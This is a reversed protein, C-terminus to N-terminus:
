LYKQKYDKYLDVLTNYLTPNIKPKIIELSAINGKILEQYHDMIFSYIIHVEEKTCILNKKDAFNKLHQITLKHINKEIFDIIIIMEM